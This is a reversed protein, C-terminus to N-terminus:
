TILQQVCLHIISGTSILSTDRNIPVSYITIVLQGSKLIYTALCFM